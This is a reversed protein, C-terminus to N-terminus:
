PKPHDLLHDLMREPFDPQFEPLHEGDVISWLETSGGPACDQYRSILTEAGRLEVDFDIPPLDTNPTEACGNITAWTGITDVAGPYPNTFLEGGDYDWANDSDGHIHLTHVPESAACDAPDDFTAGGLTVIAAIRDAYDCALRHVMFSGASHGLLYVRNPDVNYIASIEDVLGILYGADDPGQDTLDCCADTANWFHLGLATSLGDPYAYLMGRANATPALGLYSEEQEGSVGYGHLMLLLPTPEGHDYRDPVLLEVPRDGGFTTQDPPELPPVDPELETEGSAITDDRTEGDGGTTSDSAGGSSRTAGTASGTTGSPNEMTDASSPETQAEEDSPGQSDPSSGCGIGACCAVVGPVSWWRM